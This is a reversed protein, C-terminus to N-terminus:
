SCSPFVCFPSSSTVGQSSHNKPHRPRANSPASSISALTSRLDRKQSRVSIEAEVLTLVGHDIAQEIPQLAFQRCRFPRFDGLARLIRRQAIYFPEHPLADEDLLRGTASARAIRKSHFLGRAVGLKDKFRLSLTPRQANAIYAETFAFISQDGPLSTLTGIPKKYLLVNLVTVDPM